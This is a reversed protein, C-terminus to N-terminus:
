FPISGTTALGSFITIQWQTWIPTMSNLSVPLIVGPKCQKAPPCYEGVEVSQGNSDNLHDYIIARKPSSYVTAVTEGDQKYPRLQTIGPHPLQLILVILPISLCILSNPFLIM